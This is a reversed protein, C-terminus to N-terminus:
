LLNNKFLKTRINTIIEKKYFRIITIIIITIPISFILGIIGLIYSIITIFLLELLPNIQNYKNYIYPNIIYTDILSLLLYLISIKIIINPSTIIAIILVLIGGIYPILNTISAILGILLPSPYKILLFAIYYEFFSIISIKLLSNIYKKLNTDINKLLICIKKNKYKQQFLEIKDIDFLIYIFSIIFIIFTTLTSSISNFLIKLDLIKNITTLINSLDLNYKKSIINLYNAIYNISIIAQEKAIAIILYLILIITIIIIFIILISLLRPLRKLKKYFPYVIYALAFSLIFPLIVNLIKGLLELKISLCIIFIIIILKYM